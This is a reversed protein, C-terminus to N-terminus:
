KFIVGQIKLPGKFNNNSGYNISVLEGKKLFVALM